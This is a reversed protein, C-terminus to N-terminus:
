NGVTEVSTEGTVRMTRSFVELQNERSPTVLGTIGANATLHQRMPAGTPGAIEHCLPAEAIVRGEAYQRELAAPDPPTFKSAVFHEYRHVFRKAPEFTCEDYFVVKSNAFPMVGHYRNLQNGSIEANYLNDYEPQSDAVEQAHQKCVMDRDVVWTDTSRPTWPKITTTYDAEATDDDPTPAPAPRPRGDDVTLKSVCEIRKGNYTLQLAYSLDSVYAVGGAELRQLFGIVLATGNVGNTTLLFPMDIARTRTSLRSAQAPTTLRLGIRATPALAPPRDGCAIVLAIGGLVLSCSRMTEM